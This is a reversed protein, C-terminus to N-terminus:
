EKQQAFCELFYDLGEPLKQKSLLGAIDKAQLYDLQYSDFAEPDDAELRVFETVAGLQSQPIALSFKQEDTKRDYGILRHAATM